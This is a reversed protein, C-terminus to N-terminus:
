GSPEFAYAKGTGNPAANTTPQISISTTSTLAGPPFILEIRGDDSVITGGTAGIDKSVQKGDPTGIASSDSLKEMPLITTDTQGFMITSSLLGLALFINKM